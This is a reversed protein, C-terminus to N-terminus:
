ANIGLLECRKHICKLVSELFSHNGDREDRKSREWAEWAERELHDLKALERGLAEDLDRVRAAKWEEKIAKIDRSITSRQRPEMGLQRLIEWQNTTGRLICAAVKTRRSMIRLSEAPGHPM